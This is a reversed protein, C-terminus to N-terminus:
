FSVDELHGSFTLRRVNSSSEILVDKPRKESVTFCEAVLKKTNENLVNSSAVNSFVLTVTKVCVRADLYSKPIFRRNPLKQCFTSEAYHSM